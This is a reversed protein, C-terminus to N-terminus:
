LKGHRAILTSVAGTLRACMEAIGPVLPDDPNPDKIINTCSVMAGEANRPHNFPIIKLFNLESFSISEWEYPSDSPGYNSSALSVTKM